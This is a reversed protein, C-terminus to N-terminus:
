PGKKPLLAAPVPMTWTFTQKTTAFMGTTPNQINFINGTVRGAGFSSLTTHNTGSFTIVGGQVTAQVGTTMTGVVDAMDFGDIANVLGDALGFGESNTASAGDPIVGGNRDALTGVLDEMIGKMYSTSTLESVADSGPGYQRHAGTGDMFDTLVERASDTSLGLTAPNAISKFAATETAVQAVNCPTMANFPECLGTPDTGNM